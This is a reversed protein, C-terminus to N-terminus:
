PRRALASSLSGISKTIERGDQELIVVPESGMEVRKVLVSGNALREGVSAYRSTRENPVQLIISTKSGAQVVGSIEIAEAVSIPAVPIGPTQTIGGPQFTPLTGAPPPAVAVPASPVPVTIPNIVAPEPPASNTSVITPAMLLTSFPDPRGTSVAPLREPVNTPPILNPVPVPPPVTPQQFPQQFSQEPLPQATERTAIPPLPQKSATQSACGASLTILALSAITWCSRM